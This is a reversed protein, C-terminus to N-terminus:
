GVRGVGLDYWRHEAKAGPTRSDVGCENAFSVLRVSRRRCLDVRAISEPSHFVPTWEVPHTRLQGTSTERMELVVDLAAEIRPVRADQAALAAALESAVVSRETAIAAQASAEAAKKTAESAKQSAAASQESAKASREGLVVTRWGVIIVVILSLGSLISVALSM